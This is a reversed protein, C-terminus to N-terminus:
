PGESPHRSSGDIHALFTGLEAPSLARHTPNRRLAAEPMTRVAASEPSQVLTIGGTRAIRDLGRAGDDNGGTLLVGAVAAGLADAASEFLVDIAPRSFHVPEDVSLAFCRHREVLLHYNPPAIYVTAPAFPEKDEAEKVCLSCKSGLVQVLYSPKTPHLHLVIAIPIAFGRPLAPLLVSLADLAGASGGTVIMEINVPVM